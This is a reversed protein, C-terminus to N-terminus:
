RPTQRRDQPTSPTPSTMDAVQAKLTAIEGALADAEEARALARSALFATIVKLEELPRSM